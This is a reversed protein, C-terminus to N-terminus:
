AAYPNSVIRAPRPEDYEKQKARKTGDLLNKNSLLILAQSCVDVFDDHKISGSGTFSCLQSVLPDTWTRPKGPYKESEPLWVKRQAFVHSVMHLRTLKDARGPNYAYASIGERELMQRLSIGSGKDEILLIDPKRGQNMGRPPGILPKLLPTDEDDGYAVNLEKKVRKILDPLGLHDQWCDLLMVNRIDEHWFVGFVGCATPDADHTRKNLTKETFATDMSMVIWEFAPLPKNAPWLNLWNRQIIGGEEADIIEGYLEQRGLKTGEYQKLQEFFSNPLNARNDFTTGRTIVRGEKPKTLNIIFEKPKPTTTWVFKPHKGLRLGMFAMDLTEQDKTYAAAEDLWLLHFQPGRLREPEEASFGRIIPGPKDKNQNDVFTIILNTKNYDYILEPPTVSLIGAPGEFCTHRVDNLTPAIVAGPLKEPNSYISQALWQSGLLTNHTPIMGKGVLYMCNPSDVTICCMPGAEEATLEEFKVIMRHFNRLSQAGPPVYAAGKRPLFFPNYTPRWHVRYKMGHDVGKLMARGTCLVPKQGLSRALEIVADALHPLTSCFEVIGAGKSCHGDSDLLGALLAKRQEVSGQLYEVPVHKNGLVGLKRLVPVLGLATFERGNAKIKGAGFGEKELWLRVLGVDDANCSIFGSDTSGNGLWYGLVWPDLPLDKEEYQLEGCLPICHNTDGRASHTLTDVIQQTTRIEPGCNGTVNGHCDWLPQKYAPWNEPFGVADPHHRNYQKRDRHTWTVWQHDGGAVIQEGDSFTLRYARTFEPYYKALVTCPRGYEDFVRDGVALEGMTSWGSLTPIQEHIGVEKGFGRGALVGWETWEGEPPLQEPRATALWKERWILYRLHNPPMLLLDEYEKPIASPKDTM